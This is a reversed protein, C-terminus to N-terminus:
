SSLRYAAYKQKALRECNKDILRPEMM